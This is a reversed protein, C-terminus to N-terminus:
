HIGPLNPSTLIKGYSVTLSVEPSPANALSERMMFRMRQVLRMGGCFLGVSIGIMRVRAMLCRRLSLLLVLVDVNLGGPFLVWYALFDFDNGGSLSCKALRVHFPMGVVIPFHIREWFSVILIYILVLV